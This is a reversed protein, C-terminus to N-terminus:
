KPPNHNKQYVLLVKHVTSALQGSGADGLAGAKSLATEADELRGQRLYKFGLNCWAMDNKRDLLTAATYEIVANEYQAAQEYKGALMHHWASDGSIKGEIVDSEVQKLEAALADSKDPKAFRLYPMQGHVWEFTPRDSQLKAQVRKLGDGSTKLVDERLSKSMNRVQEGARYAALSVEYYREAEKDRGAKEARQALYMSYIFTADAGHWYKRALEVGVAVEDFCAKERGMTKYLEGLDYHYSADKPDLKIATKLEQLAEDTKDEWRLVVSLQQHASANKPNKRVEARAKAIEKPIDVKVSTPNQGGPLTSDATPKAGQLTCGTLAIGLVLLVCTGIWTARLATGRNM